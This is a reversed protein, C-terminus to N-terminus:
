PGAVSSSSTVSTPPALTKPHQSTVIFYNEYRTEALLHDLAWLTRPSLKHNKQGNIEQLCIIDFELKSLTPQLIARRKLFIEERPAFLGSAWAQPHCSAHTAHAIM